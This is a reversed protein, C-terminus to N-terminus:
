SEAEAELLLLSGPCAARDGPPALVPSSNSGASANVKGAGGEDAAALLPGVDGCPDEGGEVRGGPAIDFPSPVVVAPPEVDEPEPAAAAAAAAFAGRDPRGLLPWFPSEKPTELSPM